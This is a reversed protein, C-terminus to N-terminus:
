PSVGFMRAWRRRALRWDVAHMPHTPFPLRTM